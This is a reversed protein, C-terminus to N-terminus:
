SKESHEFYRLTMFGELRYSKIKDDRAGLSCLSWQPIKFYINLIERCNLRKPSDMGEQAVQEYVFSMFGHVDDQM